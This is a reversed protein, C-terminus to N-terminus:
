TVGFDPQSREDIDVPSMIGVANGDPDEVVAYRVGWFADYPPQQGRHGAEVLDQYIEDVQERSGVRFGLVGMGRQWGQNWYRAFESSDLDFDIGNPVAATRHHDQWQPDTDPIALGLKRYFAVSAEMDTVVLNFQEPVAQRLRTARAPPTLLYWRHGFPDVIVSGRGYPQDAPEREVSAGSRRALETTRDVDEVQLHLTHSFTAPSEPARVPVEPWLGSAESLMLVADGIGVEAHGITGDANVYPEGRRQAGFVEVYWDLARRADSVVIYPALAPPSDPERGARGVATQQSMTGGSSAFVERSLRMRLRGAFGSDPDVPTVPERLAEFPDM